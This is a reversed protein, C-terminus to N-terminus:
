QRIEIHEAHIVLNSNKDQKLRGVIKVARDTQCENLLASDAFVDVTLIEENCHSKLTFRCNGNYTKFFDAGTFIKGEILVSNLEIM